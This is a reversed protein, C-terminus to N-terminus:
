PQNFNEKLWTWRVFYELNQFAKDTIRHFSAKFLSRQQLHSMYTTCSQM